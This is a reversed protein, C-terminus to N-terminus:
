YSCSYNYSFILRNLELEFFSFFLRVFLRPAIEAPILGSGCSCYQEKQPLQINIVSDVASLEFPPRVNREHGPQGGEKRNEGNPLQPKQPKVIDSSPPKSSNRSNKELKAIRLLLEEILKTLEENRKTLEAIIKDKEDM